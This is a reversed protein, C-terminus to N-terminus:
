HISFAFDDNAIVNQNISPTCKRERRAKRICWGKSDTILGSDTM